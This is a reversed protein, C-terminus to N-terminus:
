EYEPVVIKQIVSQSVSTWNAIQEPFFVYTNGKM